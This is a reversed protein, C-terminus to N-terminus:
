EPFLRNLKEEVRHIAELARAVAAPDINPGEGASALAAALDDSARDAAVKAEEAATKTLATSEKVTDIDRNRKQLQVELAVSFILNLCLILAALKLVRYVQRPSVNPAEERNAARARWKRLSAVVPRIIAHYQLM